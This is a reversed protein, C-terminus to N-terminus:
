PTGPNTEGKIFHKWNYLSLLYNSLALFLQSDIQFYPINFFPGPNHWTIFLISEIPFVLFNM